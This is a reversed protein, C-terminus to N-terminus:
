FSDGSLMIDVVGDSSINFGHVYFPMFSDLLSHTLSLFNCAVLETKHELLAFVSAAERPEPLYCVYSITHKNFSFM